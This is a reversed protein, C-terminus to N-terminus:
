GKAIVGCAIRDGADGSPQSTYDDAGAHIVIAAGDADFLYGEEGSALSIRPNLIEIKLKGDAGVHINPMDGAHEGEIVELGHAHDRPAFHGGAASFDPECSGTEHIHFGHAGPPLDTLTATLLVGSPTQVLAVSGAPGQDGNQLTASARQPPIDTYSTQDAAAAFPALFSLSCLLTLRLM